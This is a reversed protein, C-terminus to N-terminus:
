LSAPLPPLRYPSQSQNTPLLAAVVKKKGADKDKDENEKYDYRVLCVCLM